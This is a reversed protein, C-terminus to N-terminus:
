LSVLRTKNHDLLKNDQNMDEGLGVGTDEGRSYSPWGLRKINSRGKPQVCETMCKHDDEDQFSAPERGNAAQSGPIGRGM